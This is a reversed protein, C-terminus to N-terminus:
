PCFKTHRVHLKHLKLALHRESIEIFITLINLIFAFYFMSKANRFNKMSSLWDKKKKKDYLFSKQLYM